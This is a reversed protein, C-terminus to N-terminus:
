NHDAYSSGTQQDSQPEYLWIEVVKGHWHQIPITAVKRYATQATLARVASGYLSANEAPDTEVVSFYHSRIAQTYAAEGTLETRLTNDWYNFHFPGTIQGDEIPPIKSLLYYEVVNNTMVLCPCHSAPIIDGMIAVARTMEPWGATFMADTQIIGGFVVVCTAAALVRWGKARCHEVARALIYGAAIAGFWAGFDVHKHLSTLTHIQAQHVPALLMAGTLIICLLLTRRSDTFSVVIAVVSLALVLWLWTFSKELVLVPSVTAGTAERALTTFMVGRIYPPGGFRFLALALPIATYVTLRIARLVPRLRGSDRASFAALAIVVPIWVATAYKTAVALALVLGAAILLPESAWGTARIVLWAGFALLFLALADFTAFAGLFQTPGLFAFVAAAAVAATRGFLRSTAAYLLITTGLMLAMSLLRAGALGGYADAIAGLPPYIVPAGSFYTPFAPISVPIPTGNLWHAIELHGAWLYLAEDQFATNSWVLRLSLVAQIVVMVM